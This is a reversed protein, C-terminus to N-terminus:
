LKFPLEFDNLKEDREQKLVDVERVLNQLVDQYIVMLATRKLEIQAQTEFINSFENIKRIAWGHLVFSVCLTLMLIIIWINKRNM